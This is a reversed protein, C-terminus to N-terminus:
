KKEYRLAVAGSTLILTDKLQLNQNEPLNLQDFLRRGNGVILPHVVIHFEDILGWAVLQAALDVGGTSISKGEQQKLKIIEDRINHRLITTRKDEVSDLNRSVVVRDVASFAEAYANGATNLSQTQAIEPWFPVMLDYTKRGYLILDVGQLQERFYDLIDDSGGFRTHDYCGDLSINIGYILKRM